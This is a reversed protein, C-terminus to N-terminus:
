VECSFPWPATLINLPTHPVHVKNTYIQCKHCKKVYKFSDSEMTLWYYGARLIKKAMTHWNAHNGFSGEHIEKILMNAEYGDLCRLFLMEYNRKYLMYGNLFFQSALRRLTKKDQRSTNTPYEQKQLFLHINYFWPKNDEEMEVALCYTPEGLSRIRISPAENYWKVKFMSSLTAM